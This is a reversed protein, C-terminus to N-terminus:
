SSYLIYEGWGRWQWLKNTNRIKRFIGWPNLCYDIRLAAFFVSFFNSRKLLVPLWCLWISSCFAYTKFQGGRPRSLNLGQWKLVNEYIHSCSVWRNWIGHVTYNKLISLGAYTDCPPQCLLVFLFCLSFVSLTLSAWVNCRVQGFEVSMIWTSSKTHKSWLSASFLGTFIPFDIDDCKFWYPKGELPKEKAYFGTKIHVNYCQETKRRVKSVDWRVTKESVCQQQILPLSYNKFALIAPPIPGNINDTQFSLTFLKWQICMQFDPFREDDDTKWVFVKM